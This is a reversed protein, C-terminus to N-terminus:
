ILFRVACRSTYPPGLGKSGSRVNILSCNFLLREGRITSTSVATATAVIIPTRADMGAFGSRTVTGSAIRNRDTVQAPMAVVLRQGILLVELFSRLRDPWHSAVIRRPRRASCCARLEEVAKRWREGVSKAEMRM